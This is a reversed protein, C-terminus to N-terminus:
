GNPRASSAIRVAENLTQEFDCAAVARMGRARLGVILQVLEALYTDFATDGAAADIDLYHRWLVFDDQADDLPMHRIQAHVAVDLAPNGPGGPMVAGHTIEDVAGTLADADRAGAVFLKCYLDDGGQGAESM